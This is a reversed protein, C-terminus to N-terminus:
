HGVHILASHAAHAGPRAFPAQLRGAISLLGLVLVVSASLAPLRRTVPGFAHQAGIGVALLMPVTGAWFAAMTLVGAVPSGTGGAAVVFTYLWGCPLLTTLLGTAGARAVPPWPRARALLSGLVRKAWAPALTAPVRVGAASAITALAWVVMLAGAIVAAGRGVGRLAAAAEVRAGIAGAMAGLAIYSVLRGAHYSAHAPFTSERPRRGAAYVCVFPGCMAACHMSGVVSALLVGFLLTM